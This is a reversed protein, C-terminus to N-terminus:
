SFRSQMDVQDNTAAVAASDSTMETLADHPWSIPNSGARKPRTSESELHQVLRPQFIPALWLVDVGLWQLYDLSLLGRLYGRGDGDSDQFSIPAIEYFISDQWWTM